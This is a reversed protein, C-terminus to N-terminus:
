ESMIRKNINFKEFFIIETGRHITNVQSSGFRSPLHFSKSIHSSELVSMMESTNTENQTSNVTKYVPSSVM